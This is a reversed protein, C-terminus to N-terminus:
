RTWPSPSTVAPTIPSSYLQGNGRVTGSDWGGYAYPNPMSTADTQQAPRYRFTQMSPRPARVPANVTQRNNNQVVDAANAGVPNNRSSAATVPVANSYTPRARTPSIGTPASYTPHIHTVAGTSTSRNPTAGTQRATETTTIPQRPSALQAAAHLSVAALPILTLSRFLEKSM